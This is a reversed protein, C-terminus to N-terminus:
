SLYGWDVVYLDIGQELLNRVLSRDEQLDIMTYRGILGYVILVPDPKEQTKDTNIAKYHHLSVKDFQAIKTKETAGVALESHDFRSIAEACKAIRSSFDMMRSYSEFMQDMNKSMADHEM